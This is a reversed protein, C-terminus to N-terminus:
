PRSATSMARQPMPEDCTGDGDEVWRDAEEALAEFARGTLAHAIVPEAYAGLARYFAHADANWTKSACWVFSRGRCRAEDAVASFLARGIGRRRAASRVYIDCLYIGRAAFATEYSDHFLAYGVALGDLEALLAVFEGKPGFGDRCVAESTFRNAPDKQHTSLESELAALVPADEPRALRIRLPM